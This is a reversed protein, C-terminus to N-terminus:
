KYLLYIHIRSPVCVNRNFKLIIPSATFYILFLLFENLSIQIYLGNMVYDHNNLIYSIHTRISYVTINSEKWVIRNNKVFGFNM